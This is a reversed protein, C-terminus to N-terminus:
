RLASYASIREKSSASPMILCYSRLAVCARGVWPTSRPHSKPPGLPMPSPPLEVAVRLSPFGTSRQQTPNPVLLVQKLKSGSLAVGTADLVKRWKALEAKVHASFETPTTGLATSGDAALRHVVDPSKIAAVIGANLKAVVAAPAKASTVVGYWQEVAYGPVGLGAVTPM